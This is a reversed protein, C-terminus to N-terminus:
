LSKRPLFTDVVFNAVATTLVMGKTIRNLYVQGNGLDRLPAAHTEYDSLALIARYASNYNQVDDANYAQMLQGVVREIRDKGREREKDKEVLKMEGLVFPVVKKEFDARTMGLSNFKEAEKRILEIDSVRKRIVENAIRIRDLASESHQINIFLQNKRGGLFRVMGNMCVVRQCIVSYQVGSSGDFSNRFLMFSNFTDDGIEFDDGRLVLFSRGFDNINKNGRSPGGVEYKANGENVIEEAVEFASRNSVPRYQNGVIGLVVPTEDPEETEDNVKVVAYHDPITLDYGSLNMEMCKGTYDLGASKLAEDFTDCGGLDLGVGDFMSFRRLITNRTAANTDYFNSM